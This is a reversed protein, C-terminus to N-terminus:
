DQEIASELLAEFDRDDDRYAEECELAAHGREAIEYLGSNEAPGVRDVLGLDALTRLRTNIYSRDKELGAALNVANNRGKEDLYTLIEFDTPDVLKM